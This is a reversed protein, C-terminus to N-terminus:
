VTRPEFEIVVETGNTRTFRITGDIQTVLACVAQLGFGPSASPDIGEPLGTGNDAVSLRVRGDDRRDFGVSIVGEPHDTFAYKLSNVILENMIIGLVSLTQPDIAVPEIETELTVKSVHSFGRVIEGALSSLYAATDEDVSPGSRYLREYLLEMSRFRSAAEELVSQAKSDVLMSSQLKLMAVMTNMNNKIRHHVENLLVEKDTLLKRIRTETERQTTVDQISGRVRRGKPGPTPDPRGIVHLVQALGDQRSITLEEDFPTGHEVAETLMAFVAEAQERGFMEFYEKETPEGRDPDRGHIKYTQRTWESTGTEPDYTWSGVGSIEQAFERDAVLDALRNEYEQRETIDRFIGMVFTEGDQEFQLGRIDVARRTGDSRLIDITVPAVQNQPSSRRHFTSRAHGLEDPPHLATQHMGIIETRRRGFLRVASPSADVIIGDSARAILITDPSIEFLNRYKTESRRAAELAEREETVDRVVILVHQSGAPVMRANYNHVGTDDRLEFDQTELTSGASIATIGHIANEALQPPLVESVHRDIFDEPRLPLRDSTSGLYERFVGDTDMYFVFDPISDLISRITVEHKKLATIDEDIFTALGGPDDPDIPAFTMRVDRIEGDKRFLQTEVTGCGGNERVFRARIEGVRRYEEETPYTHQADHDIVEEPAYGVMDFYAQNARRLIRGDAVGIGIPATRLISELQRERRRTEQHAAFLDLAMRISSVLVFEGSGKIVYGYGSIERVREVYERESHSTLFVIPVTWSELIRRATEPGDIGRGLNIDMLVLDIATGAEFLAVAEEGSIATVVAYGNREITTKEALAILAEDEM